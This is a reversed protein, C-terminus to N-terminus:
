AGLRRRTDGIGGRAIGAQSGAARGPKYGAWSRLRLQRSVSRTDPHRAKFEDDVRKGKAVLVLAVSPGETRGAEATAVAGRRAERLRLSIEQIFGQVFGVAYTRGHVGAPRTRMAAALAAAMQLELSRTLVEVWEVDSAYGVVSIHKRAGSLDAYLTRCDNARAVVSVLSVKHNAYPNLLMWHREVLEDRHEMDSVMALDIAYKSMLEQAKATFADAEGRTAARDEAKNLLKRVKDAIEERTRDSLDKTMEEDQGVGSVTM